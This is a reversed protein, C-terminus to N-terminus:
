NFEIEKTSFTLMSFIWPFKFNLSHFELVRSSTRVSGLVLTLLNLLFNLRKVSKQKRKQDISRTTFGDKLIQNHKSDQLFAYFFHCLVPLEQSRIQINIV